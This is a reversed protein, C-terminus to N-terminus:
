PVGVGLTFSARAELQGVEVALLFLGVVERPTVLRTGVSGKRPVASEVHQPTPLSLYGQREMQKVIRRVVSPSKNLSAALDDIATSRRLAAAQMIAGRSNVLSWKNTTM